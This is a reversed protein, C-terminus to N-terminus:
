KSIRELLEKLKWVKVSHLSNKDAQIIEEIGDKLIKENELRKNIKNKRVEFNSIFDSHIPNYEDHNKILKYSEYDDLLEDLDSNM